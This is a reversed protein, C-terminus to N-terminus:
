GSNTISQIQRSSGIRAPDRSINHEASGSTMLDFDCDPTSIIIDMDNASGPPGSVSFFPQDWQYVFTVRQGQPLTYQQCTDVGPGPDFDHAESPGKGIDFFSGSPRFPAEYAQRADNGAASFYTVGRAKVLDIAQAIIGDQYCPSLFILSTMM